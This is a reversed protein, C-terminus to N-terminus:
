PIVLRQGVRIKNPDSISDRNAAYVDKWKAQDGYYSRALKYLTDGKVVTHYRTGFTATTGADYSTDAVAPFTEEPRYSEYETAPQEYV